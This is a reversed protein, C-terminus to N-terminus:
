AVGRETENELFRLVRLADDLQQHERCSSRAVLEAGRKFIAIQADAIRARMKLPDLELLATQYLRKWDSCSADDDWIENKESLNTQTM